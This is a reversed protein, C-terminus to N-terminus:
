ERLISSEFHYTKGFEPAFFQEIPIKSEMLAKKLDDKPSDISEDTLQFTGFHIGISYKSHLDQHALLADSPNMHQMKMFDRPEYAGIPLFSLQINPFKKAIKKFHGGYGTDGAFYIAHKASSIVYSGWLSKFRDNLWRSSWHRAPAFTISSSHDLQHVQWWDLEKFNEIGWKKLFYGDGLPVLFLPHHKYNLDILTKEDFHDYHNHSIIVVDIKPLDQFDIAPKRARKPGLWSFPSSRESYIPDTLINFQPIQILSSSHNILTVNFQNQNELRQPFNPKHNNEVKEPWTAKTSFLKWKLIDFLNKKSNGEPNYFIKGDFHDSKPGQYRPTSNCSLFIM